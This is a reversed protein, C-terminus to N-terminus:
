ICQRRLPSGGLGTALGVGPGGRARDAPDGRLAGAHRSLYVVRRAHRKMVDLVDDAGASAMFPWVLFVAGVDRLPQEPSPPDSLDGRVTEVGDPLTAADPNRVLARVDAGAEALQQVVQTGVTGTAGSVLIKYQQAM